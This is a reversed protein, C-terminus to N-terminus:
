AAVGHQHVDGPLRFTSVSSELGQSQDQM